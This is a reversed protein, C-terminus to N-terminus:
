AHDNNKARGNEDGAGQGGLFHASHYELLFAILEGDVGEL